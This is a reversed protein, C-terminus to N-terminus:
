IPRLEAAPTGCIDDLFASVRRVNIREQRQISRIQSESLKGTRRIARMRLWNWRTAESHGGQKSIFYARFNEQYFWKLRRISLQRFSKKAM